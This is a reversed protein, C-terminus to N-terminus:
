GAIEARDFKHRETHIHEAIREQEQATHRSHRFEFRYGRIIFGDMWVALTPGQVEMIQGSYGAFTTQLERPAKTSLEVIGDVKFPKGM